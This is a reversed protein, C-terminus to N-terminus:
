KSTDTWSTDGTYLHVETLVVKEGSSKTYKYSTKKKHEVYVRHPLPIHEPKATLTLKTDDLTINSLAYSYNGKRLIFYKGQTNLEKISTKKTEETPTNVVVPKYYTCGTIFTISYIFLIFAAISRQHHYLKMLM